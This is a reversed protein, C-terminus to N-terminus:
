KYNKHYVCGGLLMTHCCLHNTPYEVWVFQMVLIYLKGINKKHLFVLRGLKHTMEENIIFEEELKINCKTHFGNIWLILFKQLYYYKIYVKILSSGKLPCSFVPLLLFFCTNSLWHYFFNLHELNTNCQKPLENNWFFDTSGM